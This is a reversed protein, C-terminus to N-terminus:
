GRRVTTGQEITGRAVAGEGVTADDHIVAGPELVAGGGVRANDGVVGGLEVGEHVEGEVIVTADGGSVTANPGITANAGVICDRLVAGPHVTADRFVVTRELVANSGILANEGVTVGRGITTNEAVAASPAVDASSSVSSGDAIQGAAHGGAEDLVAGTVSLLDWLHSVDLWRGDYRRARVGGDALLPELAATLEHEGSPSRGTERLLDFIGQRFGYVGANILESPPEGVPKEVVDVVRNGELTVVGYRSPEASRTVTMTATRDGETLTRRAAEIVTPDIIRDGNLVLFPADVTSEAQLLAHGSGLQAEQVAYEVDVGWDDGDGFYTQIRTREYGVVLVVRQIGAAVVAELVHELLPRNAIPLMPKPRRHTLPALRRGEGAALIVATPADTM